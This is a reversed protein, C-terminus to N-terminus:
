GPESQVAHVVPFSFPLAANEMNKQVFAHEQRYKELTFAETEYSLSQLCNRVLLSLRAGRRTYSFIIAKM